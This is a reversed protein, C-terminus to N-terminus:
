LAWVQTSSPDAEGDGNQWRWQTEPGLSLTKSGATFAEFGLQGAANSTTAPPEFLDTELLSIYSTSAIITFFAVTRLPHECALRSLLSLWSIVQKGLYGVHTTPKQRYADTNRRSGLTARLM